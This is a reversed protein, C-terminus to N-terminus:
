RRGVHRDLLDAREADVQAEIREGVLQADLRGDLLARDARPTWNFSPQPAVASARDIPGKAAGNAELLQRNTSIAALNQTQVTYLLDDCRLPPLSRGIM